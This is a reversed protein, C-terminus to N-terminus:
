RDGPQDGAGERLRVAGAAVGGRGATGGGRVVRWFADPPDYGLKGGCGADAGRGYLRVTPTSSWRLARAPTRQATSVILSVRASSVSTLPRAMTSSSASARCTTAFRWIRRSSGLSTCSATSACIPPTSATIVVPPV